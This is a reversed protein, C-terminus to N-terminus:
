FISKLRVMPGILAILPLSGIKMKSVLFDFLLSLLNTVQLHSNQFFIRFNDIYPVLKAEGSSIIALLSLNVSSVKILSIIIQVVCNLRATSLTFHNNIKQSLPHNIMIKEIHHYNRSFLCM